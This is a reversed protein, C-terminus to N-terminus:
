TPWVKVSIASHNSLQRAAVFQEINEQFPGSPELEEVFINQLNPLVEIIRDAVQVLEQLAAAIGPAFEKSLYLNKVAIFPLLLELWQGNGIDGDEWDLEWYRHEIYLDEVTSLLHLSPDCVQKISSLQPDGCSSINILLDDLSSKSTQYRLGLCAASDHFEVHAEDLVRSTLTRNIFQVLRPCGFRFETPRFFKICMKDLQPTDIRTVLQELYEIFGKFRFEALAPLISRKLPPLSPSERDPYVWLLEFELTLSELSSLMSLIPVIAEPSIEGSHSMRRLYLEVLHTASLLLKPLGRFPISDLAFIRLRPASGGLFTDPIATKNGDFSSLKLETLEPFPVQMAALVKDLRLGSLRVQCVRNSQGLAAIVNDTLDRSIKGSVVLPLAPWIDLRDRTPTQPTCYLRLNLRCPSQFVLNRWRRCVHVLTQWAEIKTKRKNPPDVTDEYYDFIGLLVDDPLVDIQIM